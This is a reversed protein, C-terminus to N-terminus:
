TTTTTPAVTRFAHRTRFRGRDRLAPRCRGRELSEESGRVLVLVRARRAHPQALAAQETRSRWLDAPERPSREKRAGSM